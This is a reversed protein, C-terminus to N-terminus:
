CNPSTSCRRGDWLDADNPPDNPEPHEPAPEELCDIDMFSECDDEDPQPRRKGAFAPATALALITALTIIRKM